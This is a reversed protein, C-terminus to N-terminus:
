PVKGTPLRNSIDTGLGASVRGPVVPSEDPVAQRGAAPGGRAAGQM